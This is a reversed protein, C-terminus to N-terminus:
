GAQRWGQLCPPQVSLHKKRHFYINTLGTYSLICCTKLLLMTNVSISVKVGYSRKSVASLFATDPLRIYQVKTAFFLAVGIISSEKIMTDRPNIEVPGRCGVIKFFFM